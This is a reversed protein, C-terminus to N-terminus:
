QYFVAISMLGSVARRISLMLPLLVSPALSSALCAAPASFVAAAFLRATV